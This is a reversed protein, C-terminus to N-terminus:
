NPVLCKILTMVYVSDFWLNQQQKTKQKWSFLTESGLYWHVPIAALDTPM